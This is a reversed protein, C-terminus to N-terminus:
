QGLVVTISSSSSKFAMLSYRLLIIELLFFKIFATSFSNSFIVANLSFLSLLSSLRSLSISFTVTLFCFYISINWFSTILICSSFCYVFGNFSSIDLNSLSNFNIVESIFSFSTNSFSSVFVIFVTSSMKFLSVIGGYFLGSLTDGPRPNFAIEFTTFPQHVDLLFVDLLSGKNAYNHIFELSYYSADTQFKLDKVQGGNSSVIVYYQGVDFFIAPSSPRNWFAFPSGTQVNFYGSSDESVSDSWNDFYRPDFYILADPGLFDNPPSKGLDELQNLIEDVKSNITTLQNRNDWENPMDDQTKTAASVNVNCITRLYCNEIPNSTTPVVGRNWKASVSYVVTIPIGSTGFNTYESKLYFRNGSRTVSVGAGASVSEVVFDATYEINAGGVNAGNYNMVTFASFTNSVDVFVLDGATFEQGNTSVTTNFQETVTVSSLYPIALTVSNDAYATFCFFVSLVCAFFAIRLAKMSNM